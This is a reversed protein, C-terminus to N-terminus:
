DGEPYTEELYGWAEQETNFVCWDTKDMYGPASLRAGYGKTLSLAFCKRNECYDQLQAPIVQSEIAQEIEEKSIDGVLYAPIWENCDNGEVEWWWMKKTVQREMFSSM